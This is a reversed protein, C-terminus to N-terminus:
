PIPDGKLIALYSDMIMNAKWTPLFRAPRAGKPCRLKRFTGFLRCIIPRHDYCECRGTPGVHPCTVRTAKRKDSVQDWEWKSFPVPGCCEACGDPCRMEPILRRLREIEHM